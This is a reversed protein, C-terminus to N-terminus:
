AGAKAAKGAKRRIVEGQYRIGKGKYPEPKRIARIEAAIQGIKQKDFGTIVIVTDGETDFSVGERPKVEVPHSYGATVTLGNGNKKARYGTGVLELKRTYGESVGTIMNQVLSRILGHFAKTQGENNARKFSISTENITPTIVSPVMESLEGKSGKVVIRNGEHTVTVGAPITVPLNGIRSM